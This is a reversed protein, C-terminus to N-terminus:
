VDEGHEIADLGDLAQVLLGYAEAFVGKRVAEVGGQGERMQRMIGTLKERHGKARRKIDDTDDALKTILRGHADYSTNCSTCTSNAPGYKILKHNGDRIGTTCHACSRASIAEGHSAGNNTTRLPLETNGTM